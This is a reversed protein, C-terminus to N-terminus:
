LAAQLVHLRLGGLGMTDAANCHWWRAKRSVANPQRSFRTPWRKRGDSGRLGTSRM